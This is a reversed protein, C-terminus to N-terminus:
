DGALGIFEEKRFFHSVMKPYQRFKGFICEWFLKIESATLRRETRTFKQENIMALSPLWCRRNKFYALCEKLTLM